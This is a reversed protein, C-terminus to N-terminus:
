IQYVRLKFSLFVGLWFYINESVYLFEITHCLFFM